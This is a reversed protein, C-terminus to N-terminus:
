FCNLLCQKFKWIKLKIIFINHYYIDRLGHCPELRPAKSFTSYGKMIMVGLNERVQLPLVQKPRMFLDFLFIQDNKISSFMKSHTFLHSDFQIILIVYYYNSSNLQSSFFLCHQISNSTNSQLVQFRKVTHM